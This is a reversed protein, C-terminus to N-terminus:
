KKEKNDKLQNIRRGYVDKSIYGRTYLGDLENLKGMIFYEQEAEQVSTQIYTDIVKMINDSASCCRDTSEIYNTLLAFINGALQKKDLESDQKPNTM